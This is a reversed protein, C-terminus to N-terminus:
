TMYEPATAHILWTPHRVVETTRSLIAYNEKNCIFQTFFDAKYKQTFEVKNSTAAALHTEGDSKM